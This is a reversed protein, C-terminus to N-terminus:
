CPDCVCSYRDETAGRFGAKDTQTHNHDGSLDGVPRGCYYCGDICPHSPDPCFERGRSRGKVDASLDGTNTVIKNM